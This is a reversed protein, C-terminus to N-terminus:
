GFMVMGHNIPYISTKKYYRVGEAQPDSFITDREANRLPQLGQAVSRM